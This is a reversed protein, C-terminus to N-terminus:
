SCDSRYTFPTEPCNSCIFLYIGGVDGLMLGPARQVSKHQEYPLRLVSGTAPTDQVPLWTRWPEGDFEASTISLLHHMQNCCTWYLTGSM